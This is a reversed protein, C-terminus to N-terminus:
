ADAPEARRHAALHVVSRRRLSRAASRARGARRERVNTREMVTVREDQRLSWALQSRGVDIAYVHAAGRQLLCDTFGGTSADSTSRTAVTCRRNAFADLGAALKHGGRSVYAPGEARSCRSRRAGTSRARPRRRRRAASSCVARTSRRWPGRGAPCSAAGCSSSTSGGGCAATLRGQAGRKPAAEEHGVGEQGPRSKKAERNARTLRRELAALDAKTALGLSGLQRQVENQVVKRLDESRRRSMEVVEDVAAGMQDRALHGQAVLEAVIARAQSRRLETFQMGAELARKWDSSQPITPIKPPM